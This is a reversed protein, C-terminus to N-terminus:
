AADRARASGPRSSGRKSNCPGCVVDVDQLRITKGQEKREWAVPLHDATLNETEGCDSCWPQLARARASLKQWQFDYGLEKPSLRVRRRDPKTERRYANVHDREHVECRSASTLTGCTLCPKLM